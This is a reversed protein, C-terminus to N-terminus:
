FFYWEKTTDSLVALAKLLDPTVWATASSILAKPLIQCAPRRWLSLGKLVLKVFHDFVSLCNTPLIFVFKKLTNSWKTPNASLPNLRVSNWTLYKAKSRKETISPKIHNQIPFRGFFIWNISQIEELTWEQKLVKGSYIVSNVLNMLEVLIPWGTRIITTLTELSLCIQLHSSRCFRM